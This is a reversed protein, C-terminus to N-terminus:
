TIEEFLRALMVIIAVYTATISMNLIQIFYNSM